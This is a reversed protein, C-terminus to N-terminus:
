YFVGDTRCCACSTRMDSVRPSVRPASYEYSNRLFGTLQSRCCYCNLVGHDMLIPFESVKHGTRLSVSSDLPFAYVLSFASASSVAPVSSSSSSSLVLPPRPPVAPSYLPFLPLLSFLHLLLLPVYLLFSTSCASSSFLSSSLPPPRPRPPALPLPPFSSVPTPGSFGGDAPPPQGGFQM